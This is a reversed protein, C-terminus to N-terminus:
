KYYKKPYEFFVIKGSGDSIDQWSNIDFTIKVIGCTPINDISKDGLYNALYTLGPNHGFIMVTKNTEPLNNIIKILNGLGAEYIKEEEVIQTDSNFESAFIKATTLARLAPSSVIVEPMEDKKALLKAMFPADHQGRKNLPREFDSLGAEKWSSKAHRVLYITKM